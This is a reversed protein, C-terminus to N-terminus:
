NYSFQKYSYYYILNLIKDLNISKIIKNELDNEPEEILKIVLEKCYDFLDKEISTKSHGWDNEWSHLINNIYGALENNEM